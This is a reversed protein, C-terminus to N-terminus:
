KLYKDFWAITRDQVDKRHAASRIAHGEGEYVVLETPVKLDQLAHWMEFSQPAPVEVDREGVYIFTPTKANKIFTIPSSKAYVAPDDYVSAGFFPLMWTDIGNQGYYSQWNAIGAGAVAARFRQTQTITWMTMYGGYSGGTVGLRADDVPATKEVADIGALVDRLDGGGFDKVNGRTFAEGQGFSGRPNPYFVFYGGKIFAKTTGREVFNPTSAASPGGHINTIMPYEKGPVLERPQLLWGQVRAGDSMWTISQAKVSPEIGDNDHTLATWAGVRGVLIAAPTEFGQRVLASTIGDKAFSARADGGAAISVAESWLTTAAGGKIPATAIATKDNALMTFTVRDSKHAWTLSNASGPLNPTVNTATGGSPAITFVDGGVSGFDSMLGSIFAITKGDPSWRPANIQLPPTYIETFAKTGIDAIALKAFWWNNDGDGKAETAVLKTADPSWDYEYIYTDAPSVFALTGGAAVIALRQEDPKAGIEGVLAAGAQTAGVEKKANATALVALSGNPAYKLSTMVGKFARVFPHGTDEDPRATWIETVGNKKDRVIFALHEGDPAWAPSSITCDAPTGCKITHPANAGGVTYIMLATPSPVSSTDNEDKEITELALVHKGDPSIAVSGYSHMHGAVSPAKPGIRPLPVAGLLPISGALACASLLALFRRTM